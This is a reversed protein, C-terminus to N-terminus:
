QNANGDGCRRERRMWCAIGRANWTTWREPELVEICTLTASLRVRCGNKLRLRLGYLMEAAFPHRCQFLISALLTADEGYQTCEHYNTMRGCRTDSALLESM